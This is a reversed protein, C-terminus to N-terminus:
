QTRIGTSDGLSTATKQHGTQTIIYATITSWFATTRVLLRKANTETAMYNRERGPQQRESTMTCSPFGWM